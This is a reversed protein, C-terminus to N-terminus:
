QFYINVQRKKYRRIKPVVQFFYKELAHNVVNAYAELTQTRLLRFSNHITVKWNILRNRAVSGKHVWGGMFVDSFRQNESTKLPYWFLDTANFPNFMKASIFVAREKQSGLNTKIIESIAASKHRKDKKKPPPLPSIWIFRSCDNTKTSCSNTSVIISFWLTCGGGGEKMKLIFPSPLIKM